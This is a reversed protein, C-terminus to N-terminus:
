SVCGLELLKEAIQVTNLAAGKLLNDSVVWMDLGTECSIDDRIRGVFTEGKGAAETALPYKQNAPDDVVLIGDMQSLLERARDAPLKKEFQVNMAESHGRVVPIRVTTASVMIDPADLIKRTEDVMKMEEDTYGNPQFANKQGIQPLANFAIQHPFIQRDYTRGEMIAKTEELMEQIANYGAGSVAQYTAVVVRVVKAEDHLPKLALVMQITSCNPNAIIGQHGRVKEGNVEPVVLPVEDQMRFASTNDVVVAGAKVASPAFEKSIAGGASFLAIKVGDFSDHTLEQVELEKGAFDVKKGKSRSSALLRVEDAPFNRGILTQIMEQGVAGTAGVVAVPVGM